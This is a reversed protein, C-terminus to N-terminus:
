WALHSNSGGRVVFGHHYQGRAVTVTAGAGWAADIISVWWTTTVRDGVNKHMRSIWRLEIPDVGLSEIVLARVQAALLWPELEM